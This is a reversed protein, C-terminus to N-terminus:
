SRRRMIGLRDDNIRSKTSKKGLNPLLAAVFQAAVDQSKRNAQFIVSDKATISSGRIKPGNYPVNGTSKRAQELPRDDSM